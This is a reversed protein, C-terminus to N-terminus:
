FKVAVGMHHDADHDFLYMLNVSFLFDLVCYIVTTGGHYALSDGCNRFSCLINLSKRILM